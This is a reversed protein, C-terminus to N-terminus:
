IKRSAPYINIFNTLISYLQWRNFSGRCDFMSVRNHDDAVFLNCMEDVAVGRPAKLKKRKLGETTSYRRSANDAAFLFNCNVDFVKVCHNGCDSVYLRERNDCALHYPNRFQDFNSGSGGFSKLKKGDSSFLLISDNFADSVMIMGKENVCVGYPWGFQGKGVEMVVVGTNLSVVKVRKTKCDTVVLHNKDKSVALGLPHVLGSLLTNKLHGTKANLIHLRNNLDNINDYEAVILCEEQSLFALDSPISTGEYENKNKEYRWLLDPRALLSNTSVEQRLVNETKGLFWNSNLSNEKSPHHSLTCGSLNKTLCQRRQRILKNLERELIVLENETIATLRESLCEYVNYYKKNNGSALVETCLLVLKSYCSLIDDCQTLVLKHESKFTELSLSTKSTKYGDLNNKHSFISSRNFRRKFDAFINKNSNSSSWSTKEDSNDVNLSDESDTHALFVVTESQPITKMSSLISSDEQRKLKKKFIKFVSNFKFSENHTKKNKSLNPAEPPFLKKRDDAIYCFSKKRHESPTSLCIRSKPSSSSLMLLKEELEDLFNILSNLLSKLTEKVNSFADRLKVITQQDNASNTSQQYYYHSQTQVKSVAQNENKHTHTVNKECEEKHKMVCLVCLVSKCSLCFYTCTKNLHKSCVLENSNDNAVVHLVSHDKFFNFSDHQKRCAVCLNISCKNCFFETPNTCSDCKTVDTSPENASSDFHSTSITTQNISFCQSCLPCRHTKFEATSDIFDFNQQTAQILDQCSPGSVLIQPTNSHTLQLRCPSSETSIKRSERKFGEDFSNYELISQAFDSHSKAMHHQKHHPSLMDLLRELTKSESFHVYNNLCEPCYSHGCPLRKQNGMTHLCVYCLHHLQYSLTESSAM